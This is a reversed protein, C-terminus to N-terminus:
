REQADVFCIEGGGGGDHLGLLLGAAALHLAGDFPEVLGFAEAEDGGGVAGLIEKHV